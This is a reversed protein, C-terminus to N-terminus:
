PARLAAIADSVTAVEVVKIGIDGPNQGPPVFLLTAGAARAVAVKEALFGVPQVRGGGDLAGTAAITRGAALDAPDLLDALAIAYILAASPGGLEHRRFEVHLTAPDIGRSIAAAKVAAAESDAFAARAAREAAGQDPALALTTDGHFRALIWEAITPEDLSASMLIYHGHVPQTVAGDVSVEVAVDIARGPTVLLVPLHWLFLAGLVAV